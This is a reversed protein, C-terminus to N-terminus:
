RVFATTEFFPIARPLRRLLVTAVIDSNSQRVVVIANRYPGPMPAWGDSVSSLSFRGRFAVLCTAEHTVAVLLAPPTPTPGTHAERAIAAVLAGGSLSRVGAFRSSAGAAAHAEPLFRFCLSVHTGLGNRAATCGELTTCGLALVLLLVIVGRRQRTM